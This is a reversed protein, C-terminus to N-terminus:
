MRQQFSPSPFWSEDLVLPKSREWPEGHPEPQNIARTRAHGSSDVLLPIRVNECPMHSLDTIPHACDEPPIAFTTSLQDM